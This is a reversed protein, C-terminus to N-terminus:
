PRLINAARVNNLLEEVVVRYSASPEHLIDRIIAARKKGIGKVQQLEDEDATLLGEIGGYRSLLTEARHPGVQPITRLMRHQLERKTLPKKFSGPQWRQRLNANQRAILFILYATEEVDSSWLIPVLWRISISALAGQVAHPRVGEISARDGEILLVPKQFAVKLAAVQQFLRGSTLSAAFDGTTKREIGIIGGLVYDGVALRTERVDRGLARLRTAVGAERERDDVLIEVM